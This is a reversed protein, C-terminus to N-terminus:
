KKKKKKPKAAYKKHALKECAVRQKKAKIKKCAKLAANLKQATTLPKPKTVPTTNGPPIGQNAPPTEQKPQPTEPQKAPPEEKKAEPAVTVTDSVEAKKHFADTIKLTVQHPGSTTFMHQLTPTPKDEGGSGDFEWHYNKISDGAPVTSGSADLTVPTGAVVPSGVTFKAIPPETPEVTVMRESSFTGFDNVITLKVQYEGPAKYERETTASPWTWPVAAGPPETFLNTSTWPHEVVGAAAGNELNWDYAWPTGGQLNVASADFKLKTGAAVTISENGTSPPTHTSENAISFNGEPQPCEKGPTTVGPKFEVIQDGMGEGLPKAPTIVRAGGPYEASELDPQVLAFLTGERGAALEAFSRGDTGSPYALRSGGQLSCPGSPAVSGIMGLSHGEADFIRIGFSAPSEVRWNESAGKQRAAVEERWSYAGGGPRQTDQGEASNAVLGAYLGTPFQPEGDALAIVSPAIGPSYNTAAAAHGLGNAGDGPLELPFGSAATSDLNHQAEAVGASPLIPTTTTLGADVRAMNPEGAAQLGFPENEPGLTLNLSGDLDGSVGYVAESKEGLKQSVSDETAAVDSEKATGGWRSGATGAAEGGIGTDFTEITPAIAPEVGAKLAATYENGAIAVRAGSGSGDLAIGEGELDGVISTTEGTQLHTAADPGVLEGAGDAPDAPLKDEPLDVAPALPEEGSRTGTGTTWADVSYSAYSRVLRENDVTPPADALLVYVRHAPGDVAISTAHLFVQTSTSTLTFTRMAVVRASDSGSVNEFKQIRYQLVGKKPGGGNSLAQPNVLDLVYVAYKEPASEDNSDVAMDVPYVLKGQALSSLETQSLWEEGAVVNFKAGTDPGPESPMRVVEGYPPISAALAVDCLAALVCTCVLATLLVRRHFGRHYVYGRGVPNTQAGTEVIQRTMM